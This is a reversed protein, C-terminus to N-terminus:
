FSESKEPKNLNPNFPPQTEYPPPLHSVAVDVDPPSTPIKVEAELIIQANDEAVKWAAPPFILIFFINLLLFIVIKSSGTFMILSPGSRVAVTVNLFLPRMQDINEVELLQMLGDVSLSTFYDVLYWASSLVEIFM